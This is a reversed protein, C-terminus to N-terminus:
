RCEYVGWYTAGRVLDYFRNKLLWYPMTSYKLECPFHPEEEGRKKVFVLVSGPEIEQITKIEKVSIRDPKYYYMGLNLLRYPHNDGFYMVRKVESMSLLYQQLQIIGVRPWLCFFVLVVANLGMLIRVWINQFSVRCEMAVMVPLLFSFPFLYRLEKYPILCHVLFYPVCIWTLLHRPKKIWFYLFFILAILVLPNEFVSLTFYGYWPSSEVIGSQLSKQLPPGFQLWFDSNPTPSINRLCKWVYNWAPICFNGYGWKDIIVGLIVSSVLGGLFSFSFLKKSSHFVDWLFLGLVMLGMQYRCCYSLGLLIGIALCSIKSSKSSNLYYGLGFLFLSMSVLESSLRVFFYPFFFLLLLKKALSKQDETLWGAEFAKHIFFHSSCVGLIGSLLRFFFTHLAFNTIGISEFFFSLWYYSWPQLWPRVQERFEWPLEALPTRGQKFSLFELIQFHEDYWLFGISFWATIVISFWLLRTLNKSGGINSYTM